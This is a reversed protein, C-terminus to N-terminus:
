QSQPHSALNVAEIQQPLLVERAHENRWSAFTQEGLEAHLKDIKKHSKEVELSM